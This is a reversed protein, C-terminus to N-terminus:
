KSFRVWHELRPHWFPEYHVVGDCLMGAVYSLSSKALYLHNARIMCNLAGFVETAYDIHVLDTELTSLERSFESTFITVKVGLSNRLCERIKAEIVDPSSRRPSDKGVGGIEGRVHIVSPSCNAQISSITPGINRKLEPILRSISEPFRDTYGHCHAVEFCISSDKKPAFLIRVVLNRLSNVKQVEFSRPISPAIQEFLIVGNWRALDRQHKAFHVSKMPSHFFQIGLARAFALSSIRGHLQAGGGDDRDCTISINSGTRRVKWALLPWLVKWVMKVGWHYSIRLATRMNLLSDGRELTTSSERDV